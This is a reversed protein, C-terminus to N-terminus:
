NQGFNPLRKLKDSHYQYIIDSGQNEDFIDVLKSESKELTPYRLLLNNKRHFTEHVEYIETPLGRHRKPIPNLKDIESTKIFVLCEEKYLKATFVYHHQENIKSNDSFNFNAFSVFSVNDKVEQDFIYAITIKMISYLPYLPQFDLKSLYDLYGKSFYVPKKIILDRKFKSVNNFYM